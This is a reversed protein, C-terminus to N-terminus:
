EEPIAANELYWGEDEDDAVAATAIHGPGLLHVIMLRM